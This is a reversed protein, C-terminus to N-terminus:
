TEIMRDPITQGSGIPFGGLLSQYTYRQAVFVAEELDFGRAICAAVSAALTCGSGHYDENLRPWSWSKASASDRYLTNEVDSSESHTGTVLVSKVGLSLLEDVIDRRTLKEGLARGIRELELTNPTMLYVNPLLSSILEHLVADGGFEDGRGSALVPDLIVPVEPYLGFLRSVERATDLDFIMGVKFVAVRVDDLIVEAQRRITEPSVPDIHNVGVTDQSTISTVVTVPHCGNNAIALVDAQLGAGSTPDSGSFTMVVPKTAKMQIQRAQTYNPVM